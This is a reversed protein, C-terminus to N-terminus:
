GSNTWGCDANINNWRMKLLYFIIRTFGIVKWFSVDWQRMLQKSIMNGSWVLWWLRSVSMVRLNRFKQKAPSERRGEWCYPMWRSWALVWGSQWSSTLLPMVPRFSLQHYPSLPDWGRPLATDFIVQNKLCLTWSIVRPPFDKFCCIKSKWALKMGLPIRHSALWSGVVPRVQTSDAAKHRWPPMSPWASHYNVQKTMTKLVESGCWCHDLVGLSVCQHM